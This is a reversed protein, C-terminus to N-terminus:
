CKNNEISFYTLSQIFNNNIFQKAYCMDLLIMDASKTKDKINIFEDREKKKNKFDHDNLSLYEAILSRDKYPPKTYIMHYLTIDNEDDPLHIHSKCRRGRAFVQDISSMNWQAELIFVNRVGKLDLGEGGAKTLLLINFKDANFDDVIEKREDVTTDGTFLKIKFINGHEKFINNIYKVGKNKFQSFIISKIVRKSKNIDESKYENYKDLLIEKIKLFKTNDNYSIKELQTRLGTLFVMSGLDNKIEREDFPFYEIKRYLYYIEDSMPVNEIIEIKEPYDKCNDISYFSVGCDFYRKTYINDKINGDEDIFNEFSNRLIPEEGKILAYLSTVDYPENYVLTGTLLLVKSAYECCKLLTKFIVGQGRLNHAEDIIIMVDNFFEKLYKPENINKFISYFEEKGLIMIKDYEDDKNENNDYDYKSGYTYVANKYFNYKLSKPTIVILRKKSSSDLYCEAAAVAALTKGSGVPHSVIVGRRNKVINVINIQHKKLKTRSREICNKSLRTNEKRKIYNEYKININLNKNIKNKVKQLLLLKIPNPNEKLKNKKTRISKKFDNDKKIAKITLIKKVDEKSKHIKNKANISCDIDLIDCIESITYKKYTTSNYGKEDLLNLLEDKTYRFFKSNTNIKSKSNDDYKINLIKCLEKKTRYKSRNKINRDTALKRLERITYDSCIKTKM